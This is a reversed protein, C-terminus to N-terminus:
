LSCSVIVFCSWPSDPSVILAVLVIRVTLEAPRAAVPSLGLVSASGLTFSTVADHPYTKPVKM